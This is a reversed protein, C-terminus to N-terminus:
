GNRSRAGLRSEAVFTADAFAHEALLPLGAELYWRSEAEFARQSEEASGAAWASHGKRYLRKPTGTLVVDGAIGRLRGRPSPSRLDTPFTVHSFTRANATLEAISILRSTPVSRLFESARRTPLADRSRWPLRRLSERSRHWQVLHESQGSPWFPTTVSGPGGESLGVFHRLADTGIWPIDGPAFLVPGSRLEERVSAIAAAPGEGWRSTCDSLFRVTRPLDHALEAARSDSSTAVILDSALPALRDVVRCLVSRGGIRARLKDGSFRRSLGGALVVV